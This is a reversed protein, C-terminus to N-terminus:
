IALKILRGVKEPDVKKEPAFEECLLAIVEAKKDAPMVANNKDLALEVAIVVDKILQSPLNYDTESEAIGERSAWEARWPERMPEEGTQLWEPRCELIYAAKYIWAEPWGDRKWTSLTQEKVGLIESLEKAYRVGACKKARELIQKEAMILFLVFFRILNM